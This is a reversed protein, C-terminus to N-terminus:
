ALDLGKLILEVLNNYRSAAMDSNNFLAILNATHLESRIADLMVTIAALDDGGKALLGMAMDASEGATVPPTYDRM